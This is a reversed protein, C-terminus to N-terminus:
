LYDLPDPADHTPYGCQALTEQPVKMDETLGWIKKMFDLLIADQVATYQALTEVLQKNHKRHIMFLDKSGVLFGEFPSRCSLRKNAFDIFVRHMIQMERSQEIDNESGAKPKKPATNLDVSFAKGYADAVQQYYDRLDDHANRYSRAILWGNLLEQLGHTKSSKKM